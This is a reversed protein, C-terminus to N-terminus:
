ITLTMRNTSAGGGQGCIQGMLAGSGQGCNQGQRCDGVRVMVLRERFKSHSISNNTKFSEVYIIWANTLSVEMLICYM